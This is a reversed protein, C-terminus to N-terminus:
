GIGVLALSVLGVRGFGLVLGLSLQDLTVGVKGLALSVSCVYCLM